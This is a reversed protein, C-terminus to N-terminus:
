ITTFAPFNDPGRSSILGQEVIVKADVVNAGPNKPHQRITPWRTLRRIKALGAYILIRPAHCIAAIPKRTDAFARVFNQM